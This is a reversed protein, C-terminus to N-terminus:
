DAPSDPDAEFPEDASLGVALPDTRRRELAERVVRYCLAPPYGKRALMGALQRVQTAPPRGQVSALRRSVLDRAMALEEDPGLAGVAASIDETGVGRQRLEAALARRALGRGHHRSEVWASAFMADDILKAEVFRSLVADAADQPVGRRRLANALQARTRPAATLLRLCIARAIAEPDAEGDSHAAPKARV